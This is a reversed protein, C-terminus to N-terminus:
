RGAPRVKVVAPLTAAVLAPLKERGAAGGRGGATCTAGCAVLLPLLLAGHIPTKHFSSAVAGTRPAPKARRAPWPSGGANIPHTSPRVRRSTSDAGGSPAATSATTGPTATKLLAVRSRPERASAVSPRSTSAATKFASLAAEVISTESAVPSRM